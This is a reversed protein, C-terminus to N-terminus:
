KKLYSRQDLIAADRKSVTEKGILIDSITSTGLICTVLSKVADQHRVSEDRREAKRSM